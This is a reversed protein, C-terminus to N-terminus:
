HFYSHYPGQKSFNCLKKFNGQVKTFAESISKNEFCRVIAAIEAM